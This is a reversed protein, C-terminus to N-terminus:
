DVYKAHRSLELNAQGEIGLFLKDDRLFIEATDGNTFRVIDGPTGNLADENMISTSYREEAWSIFSGATRDQLVCIATVALAFTLLPTFILKTNRMSYGILVGSLAVAICSIFGPLWSTSFGQAPDYSGSTQLSFVISIMGLSFLLLGIILAFPKFEHTTNM